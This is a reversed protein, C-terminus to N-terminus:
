GQQLFLQKVHFMASRWGHLIWILEIDDDNTAAMRSGFGCKGRSPGANSREQQSM